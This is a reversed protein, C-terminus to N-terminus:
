PAFPSGRPSGATEYHPQSAAPASRPRRTMGTSRQSTTASSSSTAKSRPSQPSFSLPAHPAQPPTPPSDPGSCGGRAVRRCGRTSQPHTGAPCRRRPVAPHAERLLVRVDVLGQDPLFRVKVPSPAPVRPAPPHGWEGVGGGWVKVLCPAAGMPRLLEAVGSGNYLQAEEEPDPPRRVAAPPLRCEYRQKFKSAVTM